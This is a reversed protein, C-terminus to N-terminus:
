FEMHYLLAALAMCILVFRALFSREGRCGSRQAKGATPNRAGFHTSQVAPAASVCALLRHCAAAM